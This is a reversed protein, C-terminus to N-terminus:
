AQDGPRYYVDLEFTARASTSFNGGRSIFVDVDRVFVNPLGAEIEVHGAAIRRLSGEFQVRVRGFALGTGDAVDDQVWEFLSVDLDQSEAISTLQRQVAIRYENLPDGLPARSALADVTSELEDRRTELDTGAEAVAEARDLQRTVTFLRDHTDSQSGFWPVVIFRLAALVAVVILMTRVRDTM